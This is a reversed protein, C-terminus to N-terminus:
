GERDARRMMAGFGIAVVLGISVWVLVVAAVILGIRM